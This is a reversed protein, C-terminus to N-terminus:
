EKNIDNDALMGMDDEPKIRYKAFPDEPVQEASESKLGAGYVVGEGVGYVEGDKVFSKFSGVLQAFHPYGKEKRLRGDEKDMFYIVVANAAALAIFAVNAPILILATLIGAKWSYIKRIGIFYIMLLLYIAALLACPMFAGSMQYILSCKWFYVTQLGAHLGIVNMIWLGWFDRLFRWREKQMDLMHQNYEKFETYMEASTINIHAADINEQTIYKLEM